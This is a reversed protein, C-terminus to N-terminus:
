GSQGHDAGPGASLSAVARQLGEDMTVPPTWGLRMQAKSIDVQLSDCLRRAMARRGMVIAASRLLWSPVPILHARKDMAKAMRRLLDATSIDEGDGALFAQNAAAPHDVCTLILDVLNDIAVLSRRNHRLAGLPLPVDRALWRAIVAFNGKAGPGYVLPSRIIVVEMGSDEALALLAQEAEWKSTGYADQPAPLDDALFPRGPPSEEGLVKISSIFVFRRAGAEIAQRALNVTGAVNVRRFESLPDPIKEKMVHVRSATHIVVAVDRLARRWDTDAGISGVEVIEVAGPMAQPRSRVSARVLHRNEEVLRRILAQAVFGTGGTVLVTETRARRDYEPNM